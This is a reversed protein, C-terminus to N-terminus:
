SEGVRIYIYIYIKLHDCSKNRGFRSFSLLLRLPRNFNFFEFHLRVNGQTRPLFKQRTEFGDIKRFTSGRGPEINENRKFASITRIPRNFPCRRTAEILADNRLYFVDVAVYQEIRNDWDARCASGEGGERRKGDLIERRSVFHQVIPRSVRGLNNQRRNGIWGRSNVRFLLSSVIQEDRKRSKSYIYIYKGSSSIRASM